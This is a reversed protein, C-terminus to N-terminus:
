DFLDFSVAEEEEKEEEVPAAAAAPAAAKASGAAAPAASAAAVARAIAEPDSLFDKVKQALPFTYDTTLAISLANKYGNIISHPISVLTPYEAALSVSAVNNLGAQFRSLLEAETLDLVSPEFISGDDYVALIELGYTFPKVGLKQLLVAEGPQVKFGKKVLEVDNLIEIAGKTIKTSINLAQFFSTETPQLSTVGKPITVAIPAVVGARAAAGVFNDQIIKRVADFDSKVFVFANNGLIYPLLVELQPHQELNDKICKRIMTNKGMLMAGKGRISLRVNQIQKSGVMDVGVIFLKSYEQFLDMLKAFYAVKKEKRSMESQVPGARPNRGSLEGM